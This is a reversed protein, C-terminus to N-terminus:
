APVRLRPGRIFEGTDKRPKLHGYPKGLARRVKLGAVVLALVLFPVLPGLSVVLLTVLSVGLLTIAIQWRRLRLMGLGPALINLLVIGLRSAVGRKTEM